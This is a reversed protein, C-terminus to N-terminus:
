QDTFCNQSENGCFQGKIIGICKAQDYPFKCGATKAEKTNMNRIMCGEYNLYAGQSAPKSKPLCKKICDSGGGIGDCTAIVCKDIDQCNATGSNDFCVKAEGSCKDGWCGIINVAGKCQEKCTEYGDYAKRSAEDALGKVIGECNNPELSSSQACKSIWLSVDTCEFTAANLCQAVETACQKTVCSALKDPDAVGKCKTAVCGAVTKAATIEAKDAAVMCNLRCGFDTLTCSALCGVSSVCNSTGTGFGACSAYKDYCKNFACEQEAATGETVDKCLDVACTAIADLATKDAAATNASCAIQCATDSKGCATKCLLADGCSTKPAPGADTATTGTDASAVGTDASGGTDTGAAGSDAVADGQGAITDTAPTAKKDDAGCASLLSAAALSALLPYLYGALLTRKM